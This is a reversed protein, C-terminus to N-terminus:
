FSSAKVEWALREYDANALDVFAAGAQHLLQAMRRQAAAETKVATSAALPKLEQKTKRLLKDIQLPVASADVHM